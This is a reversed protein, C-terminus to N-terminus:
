LYGPPEHLYFCVFVVGVLRVGAGCLPFDSAEMFDGDTSRGSRERALPRTRNRHFRAPQHSACLKSRALWSRCTLIGLSLIITHPTAPTAVRPGYKKETRGRKTNVQRRYQAWGGGGVARM